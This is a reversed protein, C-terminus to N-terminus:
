IYSLCDDFGEEEEELQEKQNRRSRKKKEEEELLSMAFARVISVDNSTFNLATNGDFRSKSSSQPVRQQSQMGGYKKENEEEREEEKGKEENDRMGVTGMPRPPSFISAASAFVARNFRSMASSHCFRSGIDASYLHQERVGESARKKANTLEEGFDEGDDDTNSEVSSVPSSDGPAGWGMDGCFDSVVAAGGAFSASTQRSRCRGTKGAITGTAIATLTTTTGTTTTTYGAPQSTEECERKSKRWQQVRQQSAGNVQFPTFLLTPTEETTGVPHRVDPNEANCLTSCCLEAKFFTENEVTDGQRHGFAGPKFIRSDMDDLHLLEQSQM